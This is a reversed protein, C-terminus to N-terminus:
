ARVAEGDEAPYAEPAIGHEGKDMVNEDTDVLPRFAIRSATAGIEARLAQVGEELLFHLPEPQFPRHAGVLGTAQVM